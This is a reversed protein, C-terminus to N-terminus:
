AAAEERETLDVNMTTSAPAAGINEQPRFQAWWTSARADDWDDFPGAARLAEALAQASAHREEPKKALCRM